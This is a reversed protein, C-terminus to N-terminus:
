GPGPPPPRPTKRPPPPPPTPPVPTGGPGRPPPAPAGLGRGGPPGRGGRTGRGGRLRLRGGRGGRRRRRGLLPHTRLQIRLRTSRQVRPPLRDDLRDKALDLLRPPKAPEQQASQRLDTAFPTQHAQRM